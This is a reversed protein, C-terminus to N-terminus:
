IGICGGIDGTVCLVYGGVFHLVPQLNLAVSELIGDDAAEM